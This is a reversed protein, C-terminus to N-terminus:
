ITPRGASSPAPQCCHHSALGSRIPIDREASASDRRAEGLYERVARTSGGPGDWDQDDGQPVSNSRNADAYIISADATFGEGAVLGQRICRRVAAEFVSRLVDAERLRGHRNKSFASHDPISDEMGLRSFWRDALNRGVEECLRRESRIGRCYCVLLMLIMLELDIPPRGTDSYHPALEARPGYLDLVADIERLLHDQSVM